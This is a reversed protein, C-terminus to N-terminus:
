LSDDTDTSALCFRDGQIGSPNVFMGYLGQRNGIDDLAVGVWDDEWMRDRSCISTKIHGPDSDYCYFAFYLNDPDYAARVTTKFPLPDGNSPWYTIFDNESIPDTQWADDELVGDLVPSNEVKIPKLVSSGDLNAAYAVLIETRESSEAGFNPMFIVVPLPEIGEWAPENSLGDLKVPGNIRPLVFQDPLDSKQKGVLQSREEKPANKEQAIMLGSLLFIALIAGPIVKNRM